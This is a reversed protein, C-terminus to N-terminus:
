GGKYKPHYKRVYEERINTLEEEPLISLVEWALDLTKEIDRNERTGQSLFKREFEDAFKLYLRETKSLSEEGVVAALSRLEVGRSYAAYM